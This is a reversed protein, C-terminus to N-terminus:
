VGGDGSMAMEVGRPLTRPYAQNRKHNQTYTHTHTHAHNHTTVHPHHPLSFLSGLVAAAANIPIPFRLHRRAM